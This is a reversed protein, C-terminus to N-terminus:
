IIDMYMGRPVPESELEDVPDAIIEDLVEPALVMASPSITVPKPKKLNRIAVASVGLEFLLLMPLAIAMQNIPDITPTIIASVIVIGAITPRQTRMLGGPPFRRVKNAFWFILPLQFTIIAGIAYAALFQMYDKAGILPQLSDSNFGVLFNLAAPLSVFYSYALGLTSLMVTIVSFAVVARTKVPALSPRIFQATQYMLLPLTIIFGFALSVQLVFGLGGAPSSYYLTEGLPKQIIKILKEHLVWGLVSATAFFGIVTFARYKLEKLHDALTSTHQM